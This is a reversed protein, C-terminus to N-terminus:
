RCALLGLYIGLESLQQTAGLCDGTYGGLKREYFLRSLVHGSLLGIAAAAAAPPGLFFYVLALCILGISSAYVLGARGIGGATPKGAGEERLYRSTAIVVISSWRSLGHGAVLGSVIMAPPMMSLTVLKTAIVMLLAIAGFAGVRSDKMIELARERAHGGGIGDFTDSLGDEHFGGTLLIVAATSILVAVPAPYITAVAAYTAAATMGILVGVLPYHRVSAAFREKSYIGETSVPLRTLFQLALAFTHLEARLRDIM